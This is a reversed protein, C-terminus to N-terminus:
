FIAGHATPAFVGSNAPAQTGAEYGARLNAVGKEGAQSKPTREARGTDDM